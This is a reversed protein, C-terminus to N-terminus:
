SSEEPAARNWSSYLAACAVVVNSVIVPLAHITLGYAIWLLAAMAQVRRLSQPRKCFYSSAFALTAIWGIYELM